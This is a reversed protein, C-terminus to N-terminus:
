LKEVNALFEAPKRRFAIAQGRPAALRRRRPQFGRREASPLDAIQERATVDHVLLEAAGVLGQVRVLKPGVHKRGTCRRERTSLARLAQEMDNNTRPIKPHDYCPFLRAGFAGVIKRFHARWQQEHPTAGLTTDLQADWDAVATALAAASQATASLRSALDHIATYGHQLEEVVAAPPLAKAIVLRLRDLEV